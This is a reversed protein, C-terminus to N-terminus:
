EDFGEGRNLRDLVERERMSGMAAAIYCDMEERLDRVWCGHASALYEEAQSSASEISDSLYNDENSFDSRRSM